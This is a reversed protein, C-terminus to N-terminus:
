RRWRRDGDFERGRYDSRRDDYRRDHDRDRGRDWDRDRDFHREEYRRDYRFDRGYAYGRDWDRHGRFVWAGPVWYGGNYYGAVWVYGEGPCAPVYSEAYRWDYGVQFQVQAANATAAGAGLMGAIMAMGLMWNRGTNRKTNRM